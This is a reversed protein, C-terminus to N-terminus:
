YLWKFKLKRSYLEGEDCVFILQSLRRHVTIISMLGMGAETGSEGKYSLCSTGRFEGRDKVNQLEPEKGVAKYKSACIKFSGM